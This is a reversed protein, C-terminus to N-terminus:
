ASHSGDQGREGPLDSGTMEVRICARVCACVCVCM